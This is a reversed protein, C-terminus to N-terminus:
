TTGRDTLTSKREGVRKLVFFHCDGTLAPGRMLPVLLRFFPVFYRRATLPFDNKPHVFHEALALGSPPIIKRVFLDLHIPTIHEPAFKDMARVEGRMLFKLRAPVNEVNPTTLIAAGDLKLLKRISRL